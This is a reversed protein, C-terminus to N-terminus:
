AVVENRGAGDAAPVGDVGVEALLANVAVRVEWDGAGQELVGCAWRRPQM